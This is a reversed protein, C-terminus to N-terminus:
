QGQSGKERKREKKRVKEGAERKKKEKKRNKRKEGELGYILLPEGHNGKEKVCGSTVIKQDSRDDFYPVSLRM